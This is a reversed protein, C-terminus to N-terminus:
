FAEKQKFQEWQITIFERFEKEFRKKSFREANNRMLNVDFCPEEHEFREIAKILSQSTQKDFFIGTKDEVVTELVGGKRFAIVPTGCAQAEVPAIGFDEVAAFVFARARQMCDILTDQSQYGLFEINNGAKAKLKKLDPGDSIVVLKKETMATFADVILDLKKYPVARSVTLYFNEKDERPTFKLVNVPPYIVEAPRRYVKAVIQAVWQSIAVFTDIRNAASADWLRLYHLISKSILGKFGSNLGTEELYQHYLHWAYRMPICIYNIHLQDPQPIIGHAVAHSCSIVVDYGRTDFQEIALPMLPLYWRHNSKAGPLKQIFSTEVQKGNTFDKCPGEPDYILTHIPAEPWVDLLAALIQEGGGFTVLWDHILALNPEISNIPESM